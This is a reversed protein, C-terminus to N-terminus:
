YQNRKAVPVTGKIILSTTTENINIKHYNLAMTMAQLACYSKGDVLLTKHQKSIIQHIAKPTSFEM